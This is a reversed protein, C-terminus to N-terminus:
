LTANGAIQQLAGSLIGALKKLKVCIYSPILTSQFVYGPINVLSAQALTVRGTFSLTKAKRGTLKKRMKDLLYSFSHKSMRQHLMPVGLYKGLDKTINVGLDHSLALAADETVNGSFWVQSKRLNIKQGSQDCFQQLITKISTVQHQSAEAVLILDDAFCMHSLDPSNGRSFKFPLWEGSIMADTIKHGLRELCLVFFYPSIPDGQRLGRSSMFSDTQSGNWNVKLSASSICHVILNQLEQPIGLCNMTDKVFSWELRDYAKELDLKIVMYGRKGKLNKLSNITEHLILINDMTSRGPIFSSQNESVVCPLIEKLRSTIIKTVVKYVVNCLAIPRFHSVRSPDNCKSILTLLTQNVESIRNPNQFCDRVFRYLSPGITEWQSKFFLPHFWDPGPAKLNPMSFLAKKTEDFSIDGSLALLDPEQIQPFSATTQFDCSHVGVSSYLSKYLNLVMEQLREDEYEWSDENNLLATICNQRRRILCAQHFFHTNEDGQTVWKTKAQHLWYSEEQNVILRYEKWLDIKLLSLRDDQAILLKKNIGELRRILRQKKQFINGFVEKNWSKLNSTVRAINETWTDSTVWSSSVQQGFGDHDLWPSLFKFYNRRMSSNVPKM